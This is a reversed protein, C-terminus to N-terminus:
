RYCFFMAKIKASINETIENRSPRNTNYWIHVKLDVAYVEM